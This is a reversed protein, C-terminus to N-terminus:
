HTLMAWIDPPCIDTGVPVAPVASEVARRKEPPPAPAATVKSAYSSGQAAMSRFLGATTDLTAKFESYVEAAMRDKEERAQKLQEALEVQAKVADAASASAALIGEVHRQEKSLDADPITAFKETDTMIAKIADPMTKGAFVFALRDRLAKGTAVLNARIVAPPEPASGPHQQKLKDNEEQVEKLKATMGDMASKAARMAAVMEAHSPM